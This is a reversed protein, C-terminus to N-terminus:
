GDTAESFHTHNQTHMNEGGKNSCNTNTVGIEPSTHCQSMAVDRLLSTYQQVLPELTMTNQFLHSIRPKRVPKQGAM